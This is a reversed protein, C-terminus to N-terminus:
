IDKGYFIKLIAKYDPVQLKKYQNLFETNDYQVEKLEISISGLNFNGIGYRALPEHNCGLSGPNLFVKTTTRFLHVPHHHGFCVLNARYDHFLDALHELTPQVIESFPDKSIHEDLKEPKIHYHTLITPVQEINTHIYRPLKELKPIFSSDLHHAIWEHHKRLEGINHSEPYQEGKLLALVVEDHNGTIMSLNQRSFLMELVENTQHGIGIMDGLCYIHEVDERRDIEHLVAELAAVNGHIDTIFAINKGM